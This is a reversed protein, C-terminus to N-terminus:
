LPKVRNNYVTSIESSLNELYKRPNKENSYVLAKEKASLEEDTQLKRLTERALNIRENQILNSEHKLLDSLKGLYIKPKRENARVYASQIPTLRQRNRLKQLCAKAFEIKESIILKRPEQINAEHTITIRSYLEYYEESKLSVSSNTNISNWLTAFAKTQDNYMSPTIRCQLLKLLILANKFSKLRSIELTSFKLWRLEFVAIIQSVKQDYTYEEDLEIKSNIWELVIPDPEFIKPPLPPNINEVKPENKNKTVRTKPIKEVVDIETERFDKINEANIKQGELSTKVKKPKENRSQNQDFIKQSKQTLQPKPKIDKSRLNKIAESNIKTAQELQANREAIRAQVEFRRLVEYPIHM